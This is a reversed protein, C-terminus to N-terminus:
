DRGHALAEEFGPDNVPLLPRTALNRAYFALWLGGLGIPGALDMWGIQFRGKSFAPLVLWSVEVFRMFLLLLAAAGLTGPNRNAQRSLLMLFPLVFNLLLVALGVWGWGGRFRALYWSIEEPLNGSWVILYQSFSVYAWFCVFGFLIPHPFSLAVRMLGLRRENKIDDTLLVHGVLDNVLRNGLVLEILVFPLLVALCVLFYRFFARYDAASRILARGVLYAGAVEIFTNGVYFIRGAGHVAVIALAQWLCFLLFLIDAAVIPGAKGQVWRLALPIIAVLLFLSFCTLWIPGVAFRGPVFLSIVFLMLAASGGAEAAPAAVVARRSGTM